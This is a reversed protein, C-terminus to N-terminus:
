RGAGAMRAALRKAHAEGARLAAQVHPHRHIPVVNGSGEEPTAIKGPQRVDAQSRGQQDEGVSLNQTDGQGSASTVGLADLIEPPLGNLPDGPQGSGLLSPDMAESGPAGAVAGEMGPPAAQPLGTLDWGNQIAKIMSAISIFGLPGIGNVVPGIGLPELGREARIDDRSIIGDAQAALDRQEKEAPDVKKVDDWIMEIGDFGFWRVIIDDIINKVWIMLPQLGEDLSQDYASEATARNVARVLPTPPLSFCYQVIRALWEDFQDVLAQDNRTHQLQVGGPVFKLKRRTIADNVITDWYDQFERIKTITWDPPVAAVADPVAGETFYSLQSGQRRLGINVTTIVQEVPSYGYAKHVRPNRPAYILEDATYNVAPLGKLIQTYAPEGTAPRRGDYGLIPKITAGDLLELKATENSLTPHKYIAPADIVLQEEILMRLWDAWSHQGDPRQLFREVKECRQDSKPRMNTNAPKKPLISFTLKSMQDKRTEIAIRILDWGGTAPEAIARLTGFDIPEYARARITANYNVPYDFRRGVAGPAIPEMPKGPPFFPLENGGPLISMGLWGRVNQSIRQVLGPDIAQSPANDRSMGLTNFPRGNNWGTPQTAM